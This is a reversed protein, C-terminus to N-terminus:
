YVQQLKNESYMATAMATLVEGNKGIEGIEPKKLSWILQGNSISADVM